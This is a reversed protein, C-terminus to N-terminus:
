SIDTVLKIPLYEPQWLKQILINDLEKETKYDAVNDKIAQLAVAKAIAPAITYADKLRTLVPATPDKLIPANDSLVECAAWLMNDTVERAQAVCVGLGIGPFVLANNSQAVEYTVNNYVIPQFPSGTTIIAHGQTWHILDEPTAESRETPNSLPAIIPRFKKDSLSNMMANVVTESFAGRVASTGILITPKINEVVDLLSIRDKEKLDWNKVESSARFYPKQFYPLNTHSDLLLGERDILWFNKRAQAETLGLYQMAQCLQDAIGVGATGAGFIVIRQETLKADNAKVGALIAACTVAGTGQIDDNFSSIHHRYKDLVKRANDRGFDEWHVFINPM